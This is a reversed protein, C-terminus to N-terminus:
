AFHVATSRCMFALAAFDDIRSFLPECASAGVFYNIPSGGLGGPQTWLCRLEVATDRADARSLKPARM